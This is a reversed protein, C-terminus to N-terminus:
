VFHYFLLVISGHVWLLVDIYVGSNWYIYGSTWYFWCPIQFAQWMYIKKMAERKSLELAFYEKIIVVAATYCLVQHMTCIIIQTVNNFGFYNLISGWIVCQVNWSLLLCYQSITMPVADYKLINVRRSNRRKEQRSRM